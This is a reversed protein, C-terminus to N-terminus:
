YEFFSVNYLYEKICRENDEQETITGCTFDLGCDLRYDHDDMYRSGNLFMQGCRCTTSKYTKATVNTKPATEAAKSTTSVLSSNQPNTVVPSSTTFGTDNKGSM